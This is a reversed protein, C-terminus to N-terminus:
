RPRPVQKTKLRAILLLNRAESPIVDDFSKRLLRQLRVRGPSRITTFCLAEVGISQQLLKSTLRSNGPM